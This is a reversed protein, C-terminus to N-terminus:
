SSIQKLTFEPSTKGMQAVETVLIMQSARKTVRLKDKLIKVREGGGDDLSSKSKM